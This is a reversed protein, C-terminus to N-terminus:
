TAPHPRRNVLAGSDKFRHLSRALALAGLDNAPEIIVVPMYAARGRETRRAKSVACVSVPSRARASRRRFANCPREM